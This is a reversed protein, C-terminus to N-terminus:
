FETTEEIVSQNAYITGTSRQDTLHQSPTLDTSEQQEAEGFQIEDYEASDVGARFNVVCSYHIIFNTANDPTYASVFIQHSLTYKTITKKLTVQHLLINIM